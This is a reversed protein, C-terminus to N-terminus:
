APKFWVKCLRSNKTLDCPYSKLFETRNEPTFYICDKCSLPMKIQKAEKLREAEVKLDTEKQSM